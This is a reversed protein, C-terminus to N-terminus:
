KLFKTVYLLYKQDLIIVPFTQSFTMINQCKVLTKNQLYQIILKSGAWLSVQVKANQFLM